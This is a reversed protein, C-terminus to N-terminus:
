KMGQAVTKGYVLCAEGLRYYDAFRAERRFGAEAAESMAEREYESLFVVFKASGRRSGLAAETLGRFLLAICGPPADAAPLPHRIKWLTHGSGDGCGYLALHGAAVVRGDHVVAYWGEGPHKVQSALRHVYADAERRGFLSHPLGYGQALAAVGALLGGEARAFALPSSQGPPLTLGTDKLEMM